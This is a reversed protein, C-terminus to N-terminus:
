KKKRKQKTEQKLEKIYKEKSEARRAIEEKVWRKEIKKIQGVIVKDLSTGWPEISEIELGAFTLKDALEQASWNFDVLEKLWKYSVRM